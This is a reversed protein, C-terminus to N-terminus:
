WPLGEMDILRRMMEPVYLTPHTDIMAIKEPFEEWNLSTWLM